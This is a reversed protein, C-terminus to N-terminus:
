TEPYEVGLDGAVDRLRKDGTWLVCQDTLVASALLHVDIYGIGRGYLLRREIFARAEEETAPVTKPLKALMDLARRRDRFNGCSLEGLVFPHILVDGGELLERLRANAARFHDIWISTDVLVM